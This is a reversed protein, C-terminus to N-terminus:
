INQYFNEATLMIFFFDLSSNFFLLMLTFSLFIIVVFISLFYTMDILFFYLKFGDFYLMISMPFIVLIL